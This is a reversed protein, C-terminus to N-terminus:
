VGVICAGSSYDFVKKNFPAAQWQAWTAIASANGWTAPSGSTPPPIATAGTAFSIDNGAGAAITPVTTTIKVRATTQVRLGYTALPNAGYLAAAGEITGMTM